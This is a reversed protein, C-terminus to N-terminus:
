MKITNWGKELCVNNQGARFPTVDDYKNVQEEYCEFIIVKTNNYSSYYHYEHGAYHEDLSMSLESIDYYIGSFESKNLYTVENRDPLLALVDDWDNHDYSGHTGDSYDVIKTPYRYNMCSKYNAYKNYPHNPSLGWDNSQDNDIGPYEGINSEDGNYLGM